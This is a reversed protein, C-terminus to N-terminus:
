QLKYFPSTSWWSQWTRRPTQSIKWCSRSWSIRTWTKKPKSQNQYQRVRKIICDDAYICKHNCSIREFSSDRVVKFAVWFKNGLKEVEAMVCNTIIPTCKALLCDM